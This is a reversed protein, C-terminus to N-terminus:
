ATTFPAYPNAHRAYEVGAASLKLYSSPAVTAPTSSEIIGFSHRALALSASSRNRAASAPSFLRRANDPDRTTDHAAACSGASHGADWPTGSSARFTACTSALRSFILSPRPSVTTSTDVDPADM